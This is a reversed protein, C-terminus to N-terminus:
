FEGKYLANQTHFWQLFVKNVDREVMIFGLYNKTSIETISMNPGGSKLKVTERVKLNIQTLNLKKNTKVFKDFFLFM